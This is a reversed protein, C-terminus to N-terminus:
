VLDVMLPLEGACINHSLSHAINRPYRNQFVKTFPKTELEAESVKQSFGLGHSQRSLPRIQATGFM